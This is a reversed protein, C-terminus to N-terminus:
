YCNWLLQLKMQWFDLLIYLSSYPTTEVDRCRQRWIESQYYIEITPIIFFLQQSLNVSPKYHTTYHSNNNICITIGVTSYIYM